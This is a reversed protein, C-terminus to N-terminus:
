RLGRVADNDISEPEVTPLAKSEEFGITSLAIANAFVPLAIRSDAVGEFRASSWTQPKLGFADGATECLPSFLSGGGQVVLSEASYQPYRRHVYDRTRKLEERFERLVDHACAALSKLITARPGTSGAATSGYNCLLIEADAISLQLGEAVSEILRRFGAHRLTRAFVPVGRVSLTYTANRDGWDISAVVGRAAEPRAICMARAVVTPASDLCHIGLGASQLTEVLERVVDTSVSVIEARAHGGEDHEALWFDSMRAPSGPAQKAALHDAVVHEPSRSLVPDFEVADREYFGDPLVCVAQRGAFAVSAMVDALQRGLGDPLASRGRGPEGLDVIEAARLRWRAGSTEVQAVKLFRTGVDVGVFGPRSLRLPLRRKSRRPRDFSETGRNAAVTELPEAQATTM